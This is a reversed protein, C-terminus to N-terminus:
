KAPDFAVGLQRTGPSVTTPDTVIIAALTLRQQNLGVPNSPHQDKQM